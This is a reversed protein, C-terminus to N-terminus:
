FLEKKIHISDNYFSGVNKMHFYSKEVKRLPRLSLNEHDETQYDLGISLSLMILDDEEIDFIFRHKSEYFAINHLVADSLCLRPWTGLHIDKGVEFASISISKM